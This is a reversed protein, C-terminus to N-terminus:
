AEVHGNATDVHGSKAQLHGWIAGQRKWIARQLKWIAMQIAELHGNQIKLQSIKGELHGNRAGFPTQAVFQRKKPHDQPGGRPKAM